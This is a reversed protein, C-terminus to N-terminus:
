GNQITHGFNFYTKLSTLTLLDALNQDTPVYKFVIDLNNYKVKLKLTVM